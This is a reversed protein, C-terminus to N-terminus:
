LVYKDVVCMINIIIILICNIIVLSKILFRIMLPNSLLNITLTLMNILQIFFNKCIINQRNSKNFFFLVSVLSILYILTIVLNSIIQFLIVPKVIDFFIMISGVHVTASFFFYDNNYM